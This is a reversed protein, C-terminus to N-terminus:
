HENQRCYNAIKLLGAFPKQNRWTSYSIWLRERARTMAVYYRSIERNLEDGNGSQTCAIMFVSAFEHGKASEITSVKVNRSDYDVDDKLDECEIGFDIMKAKAAERANSNPSIICIQGPVVGQAIEDHICQVALAVEEDPERFTHLTPKCGHRVSFKPETPRVWVSEDLKAFEYSRILEYAACMIEYTNRYNKELNLDKSSIDVDMEKLSFLNGYISQTFDGVMCLGNQAKAMRVGQTNKLDAFVSLMVQSFDQVEDILVHAFETSTRGANADYAMQFQRTPDAEGSDQMQRELNEVMRMILTRQAEGLPTKRGDRRLTEARLYRYYNKPLLRNRVYLIEDAIFGMKNANPNLNNDMLETLNAQILNPIYNDRVEDTIIPRTHAPKVTCSKAFAAATYVHIKSRELGGCLDDLMKVLLEKMSNALTVVLVEGHGELALRRARHALVSTKGSGSVGRIFMPGNYDKKVIDRQSEHLFLMWEALQSAKTPYNILSEDTFSFLRDTRGVVLDGDTQTVPAAKLFQQYVNIRPEIADWEGNLVCAFLDTLLAVVADEGQFYELMTGFLDYSSAEWDELKIRSLFKRQIPTLKLDLGQIFSLIPEQKENKLFRSLILPPVSPKPSAALFTQIGAVTHWRYDRHTELWVEAEEATGIFHLYKRNESLDQGVIQKPLGDSTAGIDYVVGGVLREDPVSSLALKEPRLRLLNIAQQAAKYAAPDAGSLRQLSAFCEKTAIWIPM